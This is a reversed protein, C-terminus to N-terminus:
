YQNVLVSGNSTLASDFKLSFWSNYRYSPLIAIPNNKPFNSNSAKAILGKVRPRTIAQLGASNLSGLCTFIISHCLTHLDMLSVLNNCYGPDASDLGFDWDFVVQHNRHNHNLEVKYRPYRLIRPLAIKLVLVNIANYINNHYKPYYPYDLRPDGLSGPSGITIWIRIRFRWRLSVRCWSNVSTIHGNVLRYVNTPITEIHCVECIFCKTSNIM